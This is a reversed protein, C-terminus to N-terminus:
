IKCVGSKYWECDSCVQHFFNADFNKHINEIFDYGYLQQTDINFHEAFKKDVECVEDEHICKNNKNRPCCSCWNDCGITFLIRVDKNNKLESLVNNVNEVFKKSYGLGRYFYICYIHHPRLKIIKM